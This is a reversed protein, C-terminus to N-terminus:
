AGLAQLFSQAWHFVDHRKVCRRLSRMRQRQEEAPLHLAADLTTALGDIDHPNVLLASSLERASGTFESLVLAGTNDYRTAAYEKAVLNMGDRLPTVVMVDAVRYLAILEELPLNRHLYHVPARGLEGFEGNIEGVLREITARQERYESVRERSPVALQVLVCAELRVRQSRLLERYARLRIDIGKTYDLRDVGLMVKRFPGLRARFAEARRRVPVAQALEEFRKADISVPYAGPRVVRGQYRLEHQTGEATTYRRALQSFNQAGGATQFGVVDAGLLGSLIVQRWPLQAFLEQPPFPIHLFFGIRVDPRLERIMAPALQLHYDHVWVTGAPAVMEAAAEAFRRNVNVYPSWWRRRYEPTRVADHYLPWLTRNCFGQYFTEIEERALRVPHNRIGDHEFPQPPPGSIGAWGIWTSPQSRLVPTLASVLGGPSIKWASTTGRRVRHVPLRNAVIVISSTKRAREAITTKQGSEAIEITAPGATTARPKSV